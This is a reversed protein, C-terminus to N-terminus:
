LASVQARAERWTDASNAGRGHRVRWSELREVGTTGARCEALFANAGHRAEVGENRRGCVTSVTLAALPRMGLLVPLSRTAASRARSSGDRHERNEIIASPCQSSEFVHGRSKTRGLGAIARSAECPCSVAIRRSAGGTASSFCYAALSRGALVAANVTLM